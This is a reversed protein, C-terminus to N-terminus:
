VLNIGLTGSQRTIANISDISIQGFTKGDVELVIPRMGQRENLMDALRNLWETNKELPVIAEAGDEGLGGIGGGYSFLTPEDFVGGKKYWSVSFRPVRPPNLSFSGSINFHPLKIKPLSWEFKFFGKIKEVAQRVKEAAENMKQSIGTRIEGFFGVVSNKFNQINTRCNEIKQDWNEILDRIAAVADAFGRWVMFVNAVTDIAWTLWTNKNEDILDGNEDVKKGTKDFDGEITGLWGNLAELAYNLLWIVDRLASAFSTLNEFPKLDLDLVRDLNKYLDSLNTVLGGVEDTTDALIPLLTTSLYNGVYELIEQIVTWIEKFNEFDANAIKDRINEIAEVLIPAVEEALPLLAENILDTCLEKLETTVPLAEEGLAGLADNFRLQAENAAIIDANATKYAEGAESLVGSAVEWVYANREAETNCAALGENFEEVDIGAQELMQTYAGTAEGLKITENAAEYFAEPQLADGFRAFVGAGLEAWKIAEEESDALLAIQQAAEVCQDSEGIVSFLERYVGSAAEASLGSTSFAINLKGMEQRYEKTADGLNIFAAAVAAIATAIVGFATKVKSGVEKSTDGMDDLKEEADDAEEEVDDLSADLEDAAESADKLTRKNTKLTSSLERIEKEVDQAAKSAKGQTAVIDIYKRKLDQLEKTQKNVTDIFDKSENSVQELSNDLKDAAKQADALRAKNDKLESSMKKIANACEIAEDSYEGQEAVIDTYKRKLDQLEKTQREVKDTLSEMAQTSDSSAEGVEKIARSVEQIGKKAKTTDATIVVKLTEDM